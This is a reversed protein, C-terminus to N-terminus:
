KNSIQEDLVKTKFWFVIFLFFAAIITQNM